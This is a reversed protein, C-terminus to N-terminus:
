AGGLTNLTPAIGSKDYIWGAYNGGTAGYLNAIRIIENM